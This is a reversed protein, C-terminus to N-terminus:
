HRKQKFFSQLLAQSEQALVGSVLATHQNMPKTFLNLVSGAAGMKPEKAAYIVRQVRSQILASACMPCPELTIYVDCQNLRYNGLFQGAANLACIEAHHSVAHDTICRNHGRGIIQGQYVVVAGIPVENEQYALKAELLAAQMFPLMTDNSLKKALPVHNKLASQLDAKDAPLLAHPHTQNASALLQWLVSQTITLGEAKLQLFLTVVGYQQIDHTTHVNLQNLTNLVTPSFPPTTLQM